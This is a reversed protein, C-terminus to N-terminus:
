KKLSKVLQGPKQLLKMKAEKIQLEVPKGQPVPMGPKADAPMHGAKSGSGVGSIASLL